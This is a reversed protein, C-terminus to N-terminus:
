RAPAPLAKGPPLSIDEERRQPWGLARFLTFQASYIVPLNLSPFVDVEMKRLALLCGMGIAVIAVMM